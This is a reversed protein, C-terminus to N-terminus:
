CDSVIEPCPQGIPEIFLMTVDYDIFIDEMFASRIKQTRNM